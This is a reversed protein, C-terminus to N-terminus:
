LTKVLTTLTNFYNPMLCAGPVGRHANLLRKTLSFSISRISSIMVGDSTAASRLICRLVTYLSASLPTIGPLRMPRLQRKLRLSTRSSTEVLDIPKDSLASGTIREAAPPALYNLKPERNTSLFIQIWDLLQLTEDIVPALHKFFYGANM